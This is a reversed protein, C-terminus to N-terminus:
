SKIVEPGNPDEETTSKEAPPRDGEVSQGTKTVVDIAAPPDKRNRYGELGDTFPQVDELTSGIVIDISANLERMRKIYDTNEQIPIEPDWLLALERTARRNFRYFGRTRYHAEDEPIGLQQIAYRGARLSADFTERIIQSAGAQYLEYVHERNHARSIIFLDPRRKRAHAVIKTITAPEDVAVVLVDATSLGAAELVEPRSPDGIYAPIGLKRMLNITEINNDLVVTKFGNAVIMENTIHGFRGVGAIIVPQQEGIEEGMIEKTTGYRRALRDYVMFLAPTLIMSMTTVMLLTDSLQGGIVNTQQMFQILVITFEGAQALGLAFLWLDRGRLGFIH